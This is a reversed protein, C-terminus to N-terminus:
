HGGKNTSVDDVILAGSIIEQRAKEVAAAMEKSILSRNNEDLAFGVGDNKLGLTTLGAQWQGKSATILSDRVALDIRKLMTTLVFGPALHNQNTDTGIALNGTEKAAKIVGLGSPGAPSFIVDAGRSFQGKAIEYAKSPNIWAGHTSGVFAKLVETNKNAYHVGQEYGVAFRRIIPIDMGGIFGVTGSKSVMAALLGVLFSGENEKFVISQVNPLDVHADILTFIKNPYKKAVKQLPGIYSLGIAIIIDAESKAFQTLALEFQGKDKPTFDVYTIGTDARFMEAGIYAAENFSKDFKGGVDFLVAAKFDQAHTKSFPFPSAVLALIVIAIKLFLNM